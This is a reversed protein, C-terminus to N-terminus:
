GLRNCPDQYACTRCVFPNECKQGKYLGKTLDEHLQRAAKVEERPLLNVPMYENGQLTLVRVYGKNSVQRSTNAEVLVKYASLQLIDSGYVKRKNRTKTESLIITGDRQQFAEDIKGRLPIDGSCDFSQEKAWVKSEKLEDPLYTVVSRGSQKFFAEYALWAMALLVIFFSWKLM